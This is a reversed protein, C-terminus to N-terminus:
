NRLELLLVKHIGEMGNNQIDMEFEQQVVDYNDSRVRKRWFIHSNYLIFISVPTLEASSNTRM